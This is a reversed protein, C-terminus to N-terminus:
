AISFPSSSWGVFRHHHHHHHHHHHQTQSLQPHTSFLRRPRSFAVLILVSLVCRIHERECSGLPSPAAGSGLSWVCVGGGCRGIKECDENKPTDYRTPNRRKITRLQKTCRPDRRNLPSTARPSFFARQLLKKHLNQPRRWDRRM